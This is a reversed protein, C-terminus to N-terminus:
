WGARATDGPEMINLFMERGDPSSASIRIRGTAVGYLANGPDAQSSVIAGHNYSRRFSLASIQQITAVPLDRFLRTRELITQASLAVIPDRGRFM